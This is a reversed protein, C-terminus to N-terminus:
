PTILGREQLKMFNENTLDINKGKQSQEFIKM